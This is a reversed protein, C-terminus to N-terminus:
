YGHRLYIERIIDLIDQGFKSIQNRDLCRLDRLDDLTAAGYAAIKDRAVNKFIVYAKVHLRKYTETRYKTLAEKIEETIEVPLRTKNVIDATLSNAYDELLAEDLAEDDASRKYFLKTRVSELSLPLPGQLRYMLTRVVYTCYMSDLKTFNALSNYSPNISQLLQFSEIIMNSCYDFLAFIDEEKVDDGLIRHDIDFQSLVEMKGEPQDINIFRDRYNQHYEVKLLIGIIAYTFLMGYKASSVKLSGRQGEEKKITQRSWKKYHQKLMLLDKLLGSDYSKGFILSYKDPNSCLTAKGGKASGPKQYMFSYLFQAIEENSTNQWAEPYLRKNVKQGRKISCFVRADALQKKLLRQEKQNAVLDKSKIPKQTNTAEAVTAIFDLRDDRQDYKNKIIKCQIFFDRGFETDGILFTTQGGNIISFNTLAIKDARIEYNDCIIIIGNNYYWFNDPRTTISDVINTDIKPNAIYYRLNQSFLGRYSYQEFLAKVSLASANVIISKEAGFHLVNNPEDILIEGQSVFEKPDEIELIDNEIEPGLVYVFSAYSDKPRTIALGNKISKKFAQSRISVDALLKYVIPRVKSPRHEEEHFFASLRSNGKQALAAGVDAEAKRFLALSAPIDLSDDNDSSILLVNISEVDAESDIYAGVIPSGNEPNFVIGSVVEDIKSSDASFYHYYAYLACLKVCSNAESIREYGNKAFEQELNGLYKELM